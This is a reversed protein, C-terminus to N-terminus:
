RDQSSDTSIRWHEDFFGAETIKSNGSEVIQFLAYDPLRPTQLANSQTGADAFTFGSNVVVYRKPSLPNPQILVPVCDNASFKKEGIGVVSASWKVALQRAIKGLLKNSQTDGWLILNSNAIDDKTIQSDLKVLVDGRFQARWDNTATALRKNIWKSTLQNTSQGSPIVFIFRDLFADDIPGQLNHSKSSTSGSERTAINWGRPTKHVSVAWPKNSSMKPGSLPQGDIVLSPRTERSFPIKDATFKLTLRTINTTSLSIQSRDDITADVSAREWQRAMGDVTLWAVQNYRLTWTTFRLHRPLHDKGKEAAADVFKSIEIKAAPTYKHEVAAGVIRPLKLRQEGMAKEMMDAAQKQKDLEGNYAVVPYNFLNAAYSTADYWNWLKREYWPLDPNRDLIHTYNATESFGAGPAAAAWLEPHHVALHWCGAGGMSFGRILIRNSDIAYNARVADIGELVDMEGAFKFANCYRGYPHLVITEPPTFEGHSRMRESVFRLETLQDNRGHLWVDLRRPKTEGNRFSPPIVLGYPQISNDIKSRYARVVLGTATLWPAEGRVLQEARQHGTALLQRASRVDNTYFEGYQLPWAVAKHFIEVDPLLRVLNPKGAVQKRLTEIEAGLREVGTQIEARDKEALNIGPPPVRSKDAGRSSIPALTMLALSVGFIWCSRPLIQNM